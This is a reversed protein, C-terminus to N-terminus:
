LGTSYSCVGNGNCDDPCKVENTKFSWQQKVDGLAYNVLTLRSSTASPALALNSNLSTRIIFKNSDLYTINWLQNNSYPLNLSYTIIGKSVLDSGAIDM